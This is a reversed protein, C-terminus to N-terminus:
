VRIFCAWAVGYRPTGLHAFLVPQLFPGEPRHNPHLWPIFELPDQDRVQECRMMGPDFAVPDSPVRVEAIAIGHRLVAVHQVDHLSITPELDFGIDIEFPELPELLHQRMISRDQHERRWFGILLRFGFDFGVSARALLLCDVAFLMM